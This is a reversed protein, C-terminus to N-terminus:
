ALAESGEETLSYVVEGKLNVASEVLGDEELDDLIDAIVMSTLELTLAEIFEDDESIDEDSEIVLTGNDWYSPVELKDLARRVAVVQRELPLAEIMEDMTLDDTM